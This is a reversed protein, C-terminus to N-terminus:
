TLLHASVALLYTLTRYDSFPRSYPNDSGLVDGPQSHKSFIFNLM